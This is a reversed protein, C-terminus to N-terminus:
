GKQSLGKACYVIEGGLITMEVGVDKIKSPEIKQLDDSLVTLDALKGVEISGKTKEEFCAYAANITYIRLATEVSIREHPSIARNVAACIGLLPNIPEV